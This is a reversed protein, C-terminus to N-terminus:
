TVTIRGGKASNLRIGVASYKRVMRGGIAGHLSNVARFDQGDGVSSVRGAVKLLRIPCLSHRTM